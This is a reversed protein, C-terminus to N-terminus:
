LSDPREGCDGRLSLAKKWTLPFYTGLDGDVKRARQDFNCVLEMVSPWRARM